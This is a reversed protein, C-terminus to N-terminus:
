PEPPMSPIPVTILVWRGLLDFNELEYSLPFFSRHCAMCPTAPLHRSLQLPTHKEFPYDPGAIRLMM